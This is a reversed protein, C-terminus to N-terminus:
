AIINNRNIMSEIRIIFSLCNCYISFCHLLYSM